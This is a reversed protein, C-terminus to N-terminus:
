VLLDNGMECFSVHDRDVQFARIASDRSNLQSIYTKDAEIGQEDIRQQEMGNTKDVWANVRPPLAERAFKPLLLLHCSTLATKAHQLASELSSLQDYFEPRATYFAPSTPRPKERQHQRYDFHDLSAPPVFPRTTQTSYLRFKSLGSVRQLVNTTAKILFRSFGPFGPCASQDRGAPLGLNVDQGIVNLPRLTFLTYEEFM